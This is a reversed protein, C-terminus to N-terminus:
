RGACRAAKTWIWRGHSYKNNRANSKCGTRQFIMSLFLIKIVSELMARIEDNPIVSLVTLNVKKSLEDLTDTYVFNRICEGRPLIAVIHSNKNNLNESM